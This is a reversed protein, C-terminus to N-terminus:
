ASAVKREVHWQLENALDSRVAGFSVLNFPAGWGMLIPAGEKFEESQVAREFDEMSQWGRTVVFPKVKEGKSGEHVSILEEAWGTALVGEGNSSADGRKRFLKEFRAFDAEIEAQYAPTVSSVPFDIQVHEVFPTSGDAFPSRDFQAVAVIISSTGGIAIGSNRITTTFSSFAKSTELERSSKVDTWESTVQIVSPEQVKTGVVFRTPVNSAKLVQSLKQVTDDVPAVASVSIISTVAM